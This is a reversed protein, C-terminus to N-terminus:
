EGIAEITVNDFSLASVKDGHTDLTPINSTIGDEDAVLRAYLADYDDKTFNEFTDFNDPLAVGEDEVGFVLVDGGKFSDTMAAKVVEYVSGQLNKMASSIVTDSEASQDVDVGIVLADVEEAASMVSNGAGGASAFIVEVGDNYWSVAQNQFDPSPNFNGLYTYKVNISAGTEEAALNAGALYGYGFNIVPPVAIGGMFGLNTFGEKVAAYGALFGSQEERYLISVTNEGVKEEHTDDFKANNPVGDVLIFKVDPHEDQAIFVAEEFLFGPTVIVEAGAEIAEEISDLYEVTSEGTPRLYNPTVGIEHAYQEMGEYSGQNFSKDNITGQDTILYLRSDEELEPKDDSGCAALSVLLIASLVLTVFKKM